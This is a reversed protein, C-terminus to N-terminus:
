SKNWCPNDTSGPPNSGKRQVVIQIGELKRAYGVSGAELANKAWDLWGKGEVYIRYYIDYKLALDGTLEIKIAELRLGMGETGAFANNYVYDQWGVNQTHTSYKIGGSTTSELKVKIGEIRLHQGPAGQVGGNRVNKQWGINETHTTYIVNVKEQFYSPSAAAPNMEPAKGGKPALSIQIGELRFGYGSSGATQDNKAWSLWGTNQIHVRYYVDYYDALDGTLKIKIGELRYGKGETGSMQESGVYPQWGINQVHTTYEINGPITSDLDLIIGELRYGKGETGSMQGDNVFQQWGVNQVHTKYKLSTVQDEVKVTCTAQLGYQNTATIIAEGKHYTRLYGYQDVNAVFNDTSSYTMVMGANADEPGFVLDLKKYIGTYYEYVDKDFNIEQVLIKEALVKVTVTASVNKNYTNITITCEGNNVATILGDKSVTAVNEDSSVFTVDKYKM